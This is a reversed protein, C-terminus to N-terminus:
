QKSRCKRHISFAPCAGDRLTFLVVQRREVETLPKFRDCESGHCTFDPPYLTRVAKSLYNASMLALRHVPYKGLDKRWGSQEFLDETSSLTSASEIDWVFHGLTRWLWAIGSSSIDLAEALFTVITPSISSPAKDRAQQIHQYQSIDDKLQRTTTIFRLMQHFTIHQSEEPGSSLITCLDALLTDM